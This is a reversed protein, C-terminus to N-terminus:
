DFFGRYGQQVRTYDRMTLSKMEDPTVSCLNAFLAVEKAADGGPMGAVAIQDGVTPERMTLAKVKAGSISVGSRLAITLSGDPNETIYEPRDTM